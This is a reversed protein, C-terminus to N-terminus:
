HELVTRPQKDRTALPRMCVCVCVCVRPRTGQRRVICRGQLAPQFSYLQVACAFAGADVLVRLHPQQM